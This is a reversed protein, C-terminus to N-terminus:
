GRAAGLLREFRARVAGYCERAAAEVGPRDTIVMRDWVHNILGAQQFLRAAVPVGPRHVCLM